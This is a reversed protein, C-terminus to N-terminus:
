WSWSCDIKSYKFKKLIKYALNKNDFTFGDVVCLLPGCYPQFWCATEEAGIKVSSTLKCTNM